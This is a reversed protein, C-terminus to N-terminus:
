IFKVISLDQSDMEMQLEDVGRNPASGVVTAIYEKM